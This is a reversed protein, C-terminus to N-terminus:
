SVLNEIKEVNLLFVQINRYDEPQVFSYENNFHRWIADHLYWLLSSSTINRNVIHALTVQDPTVKREQKM